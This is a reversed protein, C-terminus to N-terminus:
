PRQPPLPLGAGFAVVRAYRARATDRSLQEGVVRPLARVCVAPRHALRRECPENGQHMGAAGSADALPPPTRHTAAASRHSRECRTRARPRHPPTRHGVRARSRRVPPVAEAFKTADETLPKLEGFIDRMKAIPGKVGIRNGDDTRKGKKFAKLDDETMEKGDKFAERLQGALKKYTTKDGREGRLSVSVRALSACGATVRCWGPGPVILIHEDDDAAVLRLSAPRSTEPLLM